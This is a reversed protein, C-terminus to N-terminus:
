GLDEAGVGVRLHAPTTLDPQSELQHSLSSRGQCSRPGPPSGEKRAAGLPIKSAPLELVLSSDWFSPGEPIM